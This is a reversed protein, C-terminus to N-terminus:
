SKFLFYLYTTAILVLMALKAYEWYIDDDTAARKKREIKDWNNM